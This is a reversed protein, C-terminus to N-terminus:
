LTEKKKIMSKCKKIVATIACITIAARSSATAVVIGVLSPFASISVYGAATSALILLHKIYNSIKCIKKHKNSIM